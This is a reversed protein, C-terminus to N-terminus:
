EAPLLVRAAEVEAAAAELWDGGRKEVAYLIGSSSNIRARALLGRQRLIAVVRGADGGQTGVGPVLLPVPAGHEVYMGSIRDLEEPVTAGVVAGVSAGFRRHWDAIADALVEYLPRGDVLLNQFQAGGPNSTRNLLYCGREGGQFREFFPKLSDEGLYPSLTVMDAGVVDFVFRAYAAATTGIDGRKADLIVPLGRERAAACVEVLLDMGRGGLQEFFASNPKVAAVRDGVAEVLELLFERTRAVEDGGRGVPNREPVPDLGLCLTTGRERAVTELREVITAM